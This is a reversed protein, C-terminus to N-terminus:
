IQVFTEEGDSEYKGDRIQQQNTVGKAEFCDECWKGFGMRESAFLTSINGVNVVGTLHQILPVSWVYQQDLKRVTM